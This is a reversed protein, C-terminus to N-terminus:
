EQQFKKANHKSSSVQLIAPTAQRAQWECTEPFVYFAFRESVLGREDAHHFLPGRSAIRRLWGSFVAMASCTRSLFSDCLMSQCLTRTISLAVAIFSRSTHSVNAISSLFCAILLSWPTSFLLVQFPIKVQSYMADSVHCLVQKWIWVTNGVVLM